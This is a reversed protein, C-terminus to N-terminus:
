AATRNKGQSKATKLAEMAKKFLEDATVGDIPNESVGASVTLTVNGDKLLNTSEVKKRVDEAISSAERKNKEPLLMAFEDGGVRAAKGVPTTSDKIVRAVGRLAEEAPLEGYDTRFKNFNDINFVLLSCPRQYFIARKIEEELRSVIFTKNFLDTLEDKIALAKSRKTLIDSEIAITIQKAFVKVLDIDDPKFKCDETRSGLILLAMNQRGSYIPLLVFSTLNYAAKFAQAEKMHKTGNDFIVASREEVIRDAFGRGGRRITLNALTEREIYITTNPLSPTAADGAAARAIPDGSSYVEQSFDM